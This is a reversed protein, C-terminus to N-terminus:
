KEGELKQMDHIALGKMSFMKFGNKKVAECFPLDEGFSHNSYKAGSEIVVRKALFVAGTLDVGYIEPMDPLKLHVYQGNDPHKSDSIFKLTNGIFGRGFDNAIEASILDKDTKLLKKLCNSFVMIDSDISFLYENDTTLFYDLIKNRLFTLNKYIVQGRISTRADLPANLNIEDIVIHRYDKEHDKKFQHLINLTNDFCDNVLFYFSLLRKPYDLQHISELYRPLHKERNRVPASILVLAEHRGTQMEEQNEGM